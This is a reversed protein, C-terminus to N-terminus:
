YSRYSICLLTNPLCLCFYVDPTTDPKKPSYIDGQSRDYGSYVMIEMTPLCLLWYGFDTHWSRGLLQYWICWVASCIQDSLLQLSFRYLWLVIQLINDVEFSVTSFGTTDVQECGYCIM